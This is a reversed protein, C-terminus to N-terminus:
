MPRHADHKPGMLAWLVLGILPVFVIVVIWVCKNDIKGESKVIRGIAWLEIVLLIAALAIWIHEIQM